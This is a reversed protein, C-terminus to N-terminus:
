LNLADGANTRPNSISLIKRTGEIPTRLIESLTVGVLRGHPHDYDVVIDAPDITDELDAADSM